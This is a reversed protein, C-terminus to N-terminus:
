SKKKEICSVNESIIRKKRYIVYAFISKYSVDVTNKFWCTKIDRKRECIAAIRAKIVDRRYEVEKSIMGIHEDIKSVRRERKM